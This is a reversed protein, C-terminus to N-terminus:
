PSSEEDSRCLMTALWPAALENIIVALVAVSAVTDRVPDPALLEYEVIIAVAMGSQSVLGLGIWPTPPHREALRRTAIRGGVTKGVLRVMVLILAAGVIVWSPPSWMAGVLVLLLLYLFREGRAMLDMVRGRVSRVHALNAVTAGGVCGVLLISLGLGLAVGSALAIIGILYLGLEPQSTRTLTLSVFIWASLLGLCVAVVLWQISWPLSDSGLPHVALLTMAGGFLLVGGVPDLSSI